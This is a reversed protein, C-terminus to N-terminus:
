LYLACTAWMVGYIIYIKLLHSKNLLWFVSSGELAQLGVCELLM